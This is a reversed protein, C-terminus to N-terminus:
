SPLIGKHINRTKELIEWPKACTSQNYGQIEPHKHLLSPSWSYIKPLRKRSQALGLGHQQQFLQQRPLHLPASILSPHQKQTLQWTQFTVPESKEPFCQNAYACNSGLHFNSSHLVQHEELLYANLFYHYPSIIEEVKQQAGSHKNRRLQHFSFIQGM